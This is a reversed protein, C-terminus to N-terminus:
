ARRQALAFQGAEVFIRGAEANVRSGYAPGYRELAASAADAISQTAANVFAQGQLGVASRMGEVMQLAVEVAAADIQDATM